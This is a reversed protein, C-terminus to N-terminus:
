IAAAATSRQPSKRLNRSCGTAGVLEPEVEDVEQQQQGQDDVWM